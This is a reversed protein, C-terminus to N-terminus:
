KESYDDPIVPDVGYPKLQTEIFSKTKLYLDEWYKSDFPVRQVFVKNENPCYVIYDCWKKNLVAMGLMMQDYHTKWIHDYGNTPNGMYKKLPYYMRKVCKIEIIGDQNEVVGDVSVGLYKDWKPIAMGLEKVVCKRSKEYWGRAIPELRTGYDMNKRQLETFEKVEVEALYKAQEKPTTFISHDVCAGITSGSCRGKHIKLWAESRQEANFIYYTDYEIWAM